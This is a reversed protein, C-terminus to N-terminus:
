LPQIHSTNHSISLARNSFDKSEQSYWHHCVCYVSPSPHRTKHSSRSAPRCPFTRVHQLGHWSQITDSRSATKFSHNSNGLCHTSTRAVSKRPNPALHMRSPPLRLRFLLSSPKFNYHSHDQYRTPSHCRPTSQLSIGIFYIIDRYRLSACVPLVLGTKYKLQAFARCSKTLINGLLHLCRM